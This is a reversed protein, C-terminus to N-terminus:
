NSKSISHSQHSHRSSSRILPNLSNNRLLRDHNSHPSKLNKRHQTEDLIPSNSSKSRSKPSKKHSNSTSPSCNHKSNLSFRDKQRENATNNRSSRHSKNSKNSKNSRNSRPSHKASLPSKVHSHLPSKLSQPSQQTSVKILGTKLPLTSTNAITNKMENQIPIPSYNDLSHLRQQPNHPSCSHSPIQYKHRYEILDNRDIYKHQAQAQAHRQLSPSITYQQQQPYQQYAAHYRTPTMSVNMNYPAAPHAYSPTQEQSKVWEDYLEASSKHM